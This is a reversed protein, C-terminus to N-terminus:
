DLVEAALYAVLRKAIQQELKATARGKFVARRNSVTRMTHYNVAAASMM